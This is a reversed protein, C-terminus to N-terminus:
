PVLPFAVTFCLDEAAGPDLVRDGTQAGLNPSGVAAAALSAPGYLITGDRATCANATKTRVTVQLVNSLSADGTVDTVVAYRLQLDGTNNVAVRATEQDGPVLNSLTLSDVGALAAGLTVSGTVLVNAASVVSSTQYALTGASDFGTLLLFAWASLMLLLNRLSMM